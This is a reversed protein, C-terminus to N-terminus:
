LLSEVYQQAERVERKNNPMAKARAQPRWDFSRELEQEPDIRYSLFFDGLDCAALECHHYSYSNNGDYNSLMVSLMVTGDEQPM